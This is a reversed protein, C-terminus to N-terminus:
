DNYDGCFTPLELKPLKVKTIAPGTALRPTSTRAPARKYMVFRNFLDVHRGIEDDNDESEKIEEDLRGTDNIMNQVKQNM